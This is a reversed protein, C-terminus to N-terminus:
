YRWIVSCEESDAIPDTARIASPPSCNPPLAEMAPDWCDLWEEGKQPPANLQFRVGTIAVAQSPLVLQGGGRSRERKLQTRDIQVELMVRHFFGDGFLQQPRMYESATEINPSCYVGAHWFEHGLSMDNSEVLVGTTLLLWLAYFWTGHYAMEWTGGDEYLLGPRVVRTAPEYDFHRWNASEKARNRRLVEILGRHELWKTLLFMSCGVWVPAPRPVTRKRPRAAERWSAVHRAQCRSATRLAEALAKPLGGTWVLPANWDARDATPVASTSRRRKLLKRGDSDAAVFAEDPVEVLLNDANRKVHQLLYDVVVGGDLEKRNKSAFTLALALKSARLRVNKSPGIGVAIAQSACGVTCFLGHPLSEGIVKRLGFDDREESIDPEVGDLAEMMLNHASGWLTSLPGEDIYMVCLVGRSKGPIQFWFVGKAAIALDPDRIQTDDSQCRSQPPSRRSTRKEQSPSCREDKVRLTRSRRRVEVRRRRSRSRTAHSRPIRSFPKRSSVCWRDRRGDLLRGEM